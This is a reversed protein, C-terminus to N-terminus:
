FGGLAGEDDLDSQFASSKKLSSSPTRKMGPAHSMSKSRLSTSPRHPSGDESAVEERIDSGSATRKTKRTKKSPCRLPSLSRRSCEDEDGSYIQQPSSYGSLPTSIGSNSLSLLMNAAQPITVVEETPKITAAENRHTIAADSQLDLPILQQMLAIKLSASGFSSTPSTAGYISTHHLDLPSMDPSTCCSSVWGAGNGGSSSSSTHEGDLHDSDTATSISQPIKKELPIPTIEEQLPPSLTGKPIALSETPLNSLVKHNNNVMFAADFADHESGSWQGGNGESGWADSSSCRSSMPSSSLNTLNCGEVSTSPSGKPPPLTLTFGLKSAFTSTSPLETHSAQEETWTAVKKAEQEKSLPSGSSLDQKVEENGVLEVAKVEGIAFASTEIEDMQVKEKNSEEEDPAFYSTVCEWRPRVSPSPMPTANPDKSLAAFVAKRFADHREESEFDEDYPADDNLMRERIPDDRTLSEGIEKVAEEVKNCAQLTQKRHTEIDNNLTVKEEALSLGSQGALGGFARIGHVPTSCANKASKEDEEAKSLNANYEKLNSTMGALLGGGNKLRAWKACAGIRNGTNEGEEEEDEECAEDDADGAYSPCKGRPPLSLDAQSGGQTCEIPRRDYREGSHTLGAEPPAADFHVQRKPSSGCLTKIGKYSYPTPQALDASNLLPSSSGSRLGDQKKLCPARLCSIMRSPDPHLLPPLNDLEDVDDLTASDMVSDDASSSMLSSMSDSSTLLSPQIQASSTDETGCASPLSVALLTSM